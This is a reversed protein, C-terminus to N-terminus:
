ELFFLGTIAADIAGGQLNKAFVGVYPDNGYNISLLVAHVDGNLGGTNNQKAIGFANFNRNSAWNNIQYFEAIKDTIGPTNNETYYTVGSTTTLGLAWIYSYGGKRVLYLHSAVITFSKEIDYFWNKDNRIYAIYSDDFEWAQNYMYFDITGNLCTAYNPVSNEECWTQMVNEFNYMSPAQGSDPKHVDGNPSLVANPYLRKIFDPNLGNTETQGSQWGHHPATMIDSKLLSDPLTATYKQGIPGIDATYFFRQSETEVYACLSWDNYNTSAYTGSTYVSHDCNTFRLTAGDINFTQGETPRIITCNQATLANVIKTQRAILTAPDDGVINAINAATLEQPLFVTANSIDVTGNTLYGNDIWDILGGVHDIHYHSIMLYDIRIQGTPSKNQLITTFPGPNGNYVGYGDVHTDMLLWKGTPMIVLIAAGVSGGKGGPNIMSVALEYNLTNLADTVTAGPVKSDNTVSSSTGGYKHLTFVDNVLYGLYTSKDNPYSAIIYGYHGGTYKLAIGSWRGSSTYKFIVPKDYVDILNLAQEIQEPRTPYDAPAINGLDLYIVKENNLTNLANTVTEGTVTSANDVEDSSINPAPPALEKLEKLQQLIWDLNLESLNTYPFPSNFTPGEWDPDLQKHLDIIEKIIWDLNLQQGAGFPYYFM